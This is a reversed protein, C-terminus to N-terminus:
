LVRGLVLLEGRFIKARKGGGFPFSCTKPCTEQKVKLFSSGMRLFFDRKTDMFHQNYLLSKMIEHNVFYDGCHSLLIKDGVHGWCFGTICGLLYSYERCEGYVRYVWNYIYIYM